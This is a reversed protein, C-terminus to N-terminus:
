LYISFSHLIKYNTKYFRYGQRVFLKRVYTLFFGDEVASNINSIPRYIYPTCM